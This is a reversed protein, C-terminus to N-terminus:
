HKCCAGGEACVKAGDKETCCNKATCNKMDKCCRADACCNAKVTTTTAADKREYQCCAHLGKYAEDNATFNKTDYGAAAVSKEIKTLDTQKENYAVTLMKSEVNWNASSAGAEKAAKEITKKCMGCEGWVKVTQKKSTQAFSGVSVLVLTLFAILPLYKM